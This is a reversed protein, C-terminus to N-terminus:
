TQCHPCFHTGRGALKTKTITAQGCRLCTQGARGYAKLFKAYGGKKGETDAYNRFTTGRFQIAQHIIDQIAAFLRRREAESLSAVPRDPRLGAAFAAEDAYINGLGAILQQNLLLVKLPTRRQGLLDQFNAWTFRDTGPELGYEALILELEAPTVLQTYGFQRLDNFFLTSGDVFPFMIHTYTNPLETNFEPFPHGGAILESSTPYILQGTMKLHLLLSEEGEALRFILLKARRDIDRFANGALVEQWHDLDGRVMKPLTVVPKQLRKGLVHKRLGQRITEVEPLEPM